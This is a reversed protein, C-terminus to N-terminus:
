STSCSTIWSQIRAPFDPSQQDHGLGRFVENPKLIGQPGRILGELLAHAHIQEGVYFKQELYFRNENWCLLKTRLKVRTFAKISKKYVITEATTVPAWGNKIAVTRFESNFVFHWRGLGMYLAYTQTFLRSLDTDVLPISWFKLEFVDLLKRQKSLLATVITIVFRLRYM